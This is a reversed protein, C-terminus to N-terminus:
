RGTNIATQGDLPVEQTSFGVYSVVLVANQDTVELEFNGDFDSQTGNSTGKEVISAGALPQNNGDLITGTVSLDQILSENNVVPTSGTAFENGFIVNGYFSSCLALIAFSWYQKRQLASINM